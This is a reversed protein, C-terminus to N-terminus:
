PTPFTTGTILFPPLATTAGKYDVLLIESREGVLNRNAPPVPQSAIIAFHTEPEKLNVNTIFM